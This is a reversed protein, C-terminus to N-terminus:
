CSLLARGSPDLKVCHLPVSVGTVTSAFTFTPNTASLGTLRGTHSFTISTYANNTISIDPYAAQKQLPTAPSSALAVTWGGQWGGAGAKAVVVNANRKAAESRAYVLTASFDYTANRVRQNVVFWRLSPIAFAGIIAFVVLTIILEMLTYGGHARGLQTKHAM